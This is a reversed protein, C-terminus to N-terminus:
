IRLLPLQQEGSAVLYGHLAQIIRVRDGGAVEVWAEGNANLVNALRLHGHLM